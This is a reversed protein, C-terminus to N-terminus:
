ARSAFLKAIERSAKSPKVRMEKRGNPLTVLMHSHSDITDFIEKELEDIEKRQSEVKGALTELGRALQTLVAGDSAQKTELRRIAQRIEQVSTTLTNELSAMRSQAEELQHKQVAELETIKEEVTALRQRGEKGIRELVEASLKSEECPEAEPSHQSTGRPNDGPKLGHRRGLHWTLGSENRFPKHDCHPCLIKNTAM